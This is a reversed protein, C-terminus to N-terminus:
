TSGPTPGQLGCITRDRNSTLGELREKMDEAGSLVQFMMWLLRQCEEPQGQKGVQMMHRTRPSYMRRKEIDNTEWM